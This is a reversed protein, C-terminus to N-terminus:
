RTCRKSKFYLWNGWAEVQVWQSYVQLLQHENVNLGPKLLWPVLRVSEEAILRQLRLLAVTKLALQSAVSLLLYFSHDTHTHLIVM